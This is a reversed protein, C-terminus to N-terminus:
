SLLTLLPYQDSLSCRVRSNVRARRLPTGKKGEEEEQEGEDEGAEAAEDSSEAARSRTSAGKGTRRGYQTTIYRTHWAQEEASLEVETMPRLVVVRCRRYQKLFPHASLHGSRSPPGRRVWARFLCRQFRGAVEPMGATPNSLASASSSAETDASGGNTHWAGDSESRYADLPISTGTAAEAPVTVRGEEASSQTTGGVDKIEDKEEEEAGEGDRGGRREEEEEAHSLMAKMMMRMSAKSALGPSPRFYFYNTMHDVRHRACTNTTREQGSPSGARVWADEFGPVRERAGLFVNGVVVDPRIHHHVWELAVARHADLQGPPRRGGGSSSRNHPSSAEAFAMPPPLPPQTRLTFPSGEVSVAADSLLGQLHTGLSKGRYSLDLTTLVCRHSASPSANAQAAEVEAEEDKLAAAMASTSKTEIPSGNNNDDSSSSSHGISSATSSTHSRLEMTLGAGMGPLLKAEWVSTTKVFLQVEGCRGNRATGVLRYTCAPADEGCLTATSRVAKADEESEQEPCGTQETASTAHTPSLSSSSKAKSLDDGKANSDKVDSHQQQQQLEKALEACYVKLQAEASNDGQRRPAAAEAALAAALEATSDQLAVVDPAARRVTECLLPIRQAMSLRRACHHHTHCSGDVAWSLISLPPPPPPPPSSPKTTPSTAATSTSSAAAAPARSGDFGSTSNSISTAAPATPTSQFRCHTQLAHTGSFLTYSILRDARVNFGGGCSMFYLSSARSAVCLELRLQRYMRPVISNLPPLKDVKKYRLHLTPLCGAVDPM